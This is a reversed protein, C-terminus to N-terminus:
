RAPPRPASGGAGCPERHRRMQGRPEWRGPMASRTRLAATPTSMRMSSAGVAGHGWRQGPGAAADRARSGAPSRWSDGRARRGASDACRKVSGAPRRPRRSAPGGRCAGGRRGAARAAPCRAAPGRDGRREGGPRPGSRPRGPCRGGGTPSRRPFASGFRRGNPRWPREAGDGVLLRCQHATRAGRPTTGTLLPQVQKDESSSM